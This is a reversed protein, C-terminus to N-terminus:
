PWSFNMAAKSGTPTGSSVGCALGLFANDSNIFTLYYSYSAGDNAHVRADTSQERKINVVDRMKRQQGYVTRIDEQDAGM